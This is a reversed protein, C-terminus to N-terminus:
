ACPKRPRASILPARPIATIGWTRDGWLRELLRDDTWRRLGCCRQGPNMAAIAACGILLAPNLAGAILLLGALM